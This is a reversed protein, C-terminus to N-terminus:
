VMAPADGPAWGLAQLAGHVTNLTTAEAETIAKDQCAGALIGAFAHAHVWRLEDPTLALTAQKSRLYQVEDSTM